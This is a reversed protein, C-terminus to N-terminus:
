PGLIRGESKALTEQDHRECFPVIQIHAAPKDCQICYEGKASHAPAIFDSLYPLIPDKPENTEM